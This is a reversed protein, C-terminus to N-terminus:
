GPSRMAMGSYSGNEEVKNELGNSWLMEEDITFKGPFFNQGENKKGRTGLLLSSFHYISLGQYKKNTM